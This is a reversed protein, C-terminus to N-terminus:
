FTVLFTSWLLAEAQERRIIFLIEMNQVPWAGKAAEGRKNTVKDNHVGPKQCKVVVM